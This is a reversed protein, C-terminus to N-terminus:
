FMYRTFRDDPPYNVHGKWTLHGSVMRVTGDPNRLIDWKWCPPYWEVAEFDSENDYLSWEFVKLASCVSAIARAYQAMDYEHVGAWVEMGCSEDMCEIGSHLCRERFEDEWDEDNQLKCYSKFDLSRGNQIPLEFANPLITGLRLYRLNKWKAFCKRLILPSFTDPDLFPDEDPNSLVVSLKTCDAFFPIGGLNEIDELLLISEPAPELCFATLKQPLVFDSDTDSIKQSARTFAFGLMMLQSLRFISAPDVDSFGPLDQLTFPSSLEGRALQMCYAFPSFTRPINVELLTPQATVFNLFEDTLFPWSTGSAELYLTRLMPFTVKRYVMTTLWDLSNSCLTKLSPAILPKFGPDDRIPHEWDPAHM